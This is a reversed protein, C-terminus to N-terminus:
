PLPDVGLSAALENLTGRLAPSMPIGDRGRELKRQHSQEGPLWIRKVDEMRESERIERVAADVDRKFAELETFFEVNLALMVQGTNCASRDDANFDICAGGFLAGNLVGALLGIVIALGSGKHEGIPLLFGEGARKPDTIPEGRRNIMWGVPMPKNALAYTKVKGYAAITTAMDLVVPPEEGAPIAVALPNTGLISEVGGWPPMHNASAVALYLGVMDRALPMEAYLAAPGAHNSMRVGVWAVGTKSAKEIAVEAARKVVLHGMGNDGDVLATSPFDRTLRINPRTNVGGARIRRVYQPLRFIGHGDAGRLDARIMLEAVQAADDGPLGVAELATATFQELDAASYRRTAQRSTEPTATM